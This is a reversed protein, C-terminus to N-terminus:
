LFQFVANKQNNNKTIRSRTKNPCALCKHNKYPMQMRYIDCLDRLSKQDEMM